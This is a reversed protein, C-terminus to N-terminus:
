GSEVVRRFAALNALSEGRDVRWAWERRIASAFGLQLAPDFNEDSYALVSGLLRDLEGEDVAALPLRGSLYVDGLRDLCFAVAYMRANRELLYRYFDAQNEDPRRVFFAQVLLAHAGVALLCNTVLKHEGRLEAVFEGPRDHSFAIGREALM